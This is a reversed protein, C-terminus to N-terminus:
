QREDGSERMRIQQYDRYREPTMQLAAREAEAAAAGAEYCSWTEIDPANYFRRFEKLASEPSMFAVGDFGLQFAYPRSFLRNQAQAYQTNM